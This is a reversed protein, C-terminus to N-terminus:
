INKEKEMQLLNQAFQTVIIATHVEMMSLSRPLYVSNTMEMKILSRTPTVRKLSM